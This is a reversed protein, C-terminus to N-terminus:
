ASNSFAETDDSRLACRLVFWVAMDLLPLATAFRTDSVIRVFPKGLARRDAAVTLLGITRDPGEPRRPIARACSVPRAVSLSRVAAYSVLDPRLLALSGTAFGRLRLPISVIGRAM